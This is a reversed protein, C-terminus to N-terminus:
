SLQRNFTFELWYYVSAVRELLDDLRMTINIDSSLLPIYGNSNIM